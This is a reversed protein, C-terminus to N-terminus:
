GEEEGRPRPRMSRVTPTEPIPPPPMSMPPLSPLAQQERPRVVHGGLAGQLAGIVLVVAGGIARWDAAAIKEITAPPTFLLAALAGGIVMALAALQPWSIRGVLDRM